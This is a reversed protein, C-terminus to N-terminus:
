DVFRTLYSLNDSMMDRRIPNRRDDLKRTGYDTCKVNVTNFWDRIYKAFIATDGFHGYGHSAYYNLANITSEHFAADALKVNTKEIPKPHLMQENLKFAMKQPKGKELEYLEKLVSFSPSIDQKSENPDMLPCKFTNYNSWNNYVNKFLHTSDYFPFNQSGPLAENSVSLDMKKNLIRKNFFSMNSSHGDTMTVAADFGIKAVKNMVDKWITYLKEFNIKVIPVM